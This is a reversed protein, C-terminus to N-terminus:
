ILCTYFNLIPDFQHYRLNSVFLKVCLILYNLTVALLLNKAMLRISTCVIIQAKVCYFVVM